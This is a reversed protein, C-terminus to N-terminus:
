PDQVYMTSPQLLMYLYYEFPNISFSKWLIYDRSIIMERLNYDIKIKIVPAVKMLKIQTSKIRNIAPIMTQVPINMTKKM